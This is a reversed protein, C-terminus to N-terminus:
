TLAPFGVLAFPLTYTRLIIAHGQACAGTYQHLLLQRSMQLTHSRAAHVQGQMLAAQGVGAQRVTVGDPSIEGMADHGGRAGQVRARAEEIGPLQGRVAQYALLM